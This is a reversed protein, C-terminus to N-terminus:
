DLLSHAESDQEVAAVNDQTASRDHYDDLTTAVALLWTAVFVVLEGLALTERRQFRM